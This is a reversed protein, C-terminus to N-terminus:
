KTNVNDKYITTLSNFFDVATIYNGNNILYPTDPPANLIGKLVGETVPLLPAAKSGVNYIDIATKITTPSTAVEEVTSAVEPVAVVGMVALGGVAIANIVPNTVAQQEIEPLENYAKVYKEQATGGAPKIEGRPKSKAV